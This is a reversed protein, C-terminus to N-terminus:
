EEGKNYGKYIRLRIIEFSNTLDIAVGQVIMRVDSLTCECVPQNLEQM